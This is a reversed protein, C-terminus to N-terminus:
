DVKKLILSRHINEWMLPRDQFKKIDSIYTVYDDEEISQENYYSKGNSLLLRASLYYLNDIGEKKIKEIEEEYEKIKFIAANELNIYNIKKKDVEEKPLRSMLSYNIRLRELFKAFSPDDNETIVYVVEHINTRHKELLPGSIPRDTVISSPASHLQNDLWGEDFHLDMRMYITDTGLDRPNVVQNPIGEITRKDYAEGIYVTEYPFNFELNLHRCIERAIDEPKIKNITKPMEQLQFTPKDKIDPLLLSQNESSGWYPKLNQLHSNPYVIVMKKDFFAAIHAPFSDCGIHLMSKNILYSTQGISTAGCLNVCGGLPAEGVDGLQIVKINHAELTSGILDLVTQWYDYNKTPKSLPHFTVFKDMDLPFFKELVYPKDIKLGCHTAYTEILHM